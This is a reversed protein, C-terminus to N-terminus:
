YGNGSNQTYCYFGIGSFESTDEFGRFLVKRSIPDPVSASCAGTLKGACKEVLALAVCALLTPLRVASCYSFAHIFIKNVLYITNRTNIKKVLFEGVVTEDRNM